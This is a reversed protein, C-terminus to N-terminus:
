NMLLTIHVHIRVARDPLGLIRSHVHYTVPNSKKKKKENGAEGSGEREARQRRRVSVVSAFFDAGSTQQAKDGTM